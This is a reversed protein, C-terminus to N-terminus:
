ESRGNRRRRLTDQEHLQQCAACRFMKYSLRVSEIEDGCETCHKEDFDKPPKEQNAKHNQFSVRQHLDNLEQADDIYDAM